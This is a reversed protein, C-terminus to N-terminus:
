FFESHNFNALEQLEIKLSSKNQITAMGSLTVRSGFTAPQKKLFAPEQKMIAHLM